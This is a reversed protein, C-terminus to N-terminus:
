GNEINKRSIYMCQFIICMSTIYVFCYMRFYSDVGTGFFLEKKVGLLKSLNSCKKVSIKRPSDFNCPLFRAFFLKMNLKVLLFVLTVSAYGTGGCLHLTNCSYCFQFCNAIRAFARWILQKRLDQSRRQTIHQVDYLFFCSFTILM